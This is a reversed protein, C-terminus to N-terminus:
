SAVPMMKASLVRHYLRPSSQSGIASKRVVVLTIEGCKISQQHSNRDHRLFSAKAPMRVNRALCPCAVVKAWSSAKLHNQRMM